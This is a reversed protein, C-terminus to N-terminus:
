SREVIRRYADNVSLGTRGTFRAWWLVLAVLLAGPLLILLTDLTGAVAREAVFLKPYPSTPKGVVLTLWANSAFHIGIPLALSGTAVYATVFYSVSIVAQLAGFVPNTFEAAVGFAHPVGFALASLIIAGALAGTRSVSRAVLGEAANRILLSRFVFEEWVATVLIGFLSVGTILALSSPGTTVGRVATDTVTLGGTGAWIVTVALQFILGLGIGAALDRVWVVNIGFGVGSVSRNGLRVAVVVTVVLAALYPLKLETIVPQVGAASFITDGVIVLGIFVAAAFLIRWTARLRTDTEGYLVQEVTTRRDTAQPAEERNTSDM